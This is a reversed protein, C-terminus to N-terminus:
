SRHKPPLLSLLSSAMIIGVAIAGAELLTQYLMAASEGPNNQLALLLSNYIGSGPVLPILGSVLFVTAPTKKFRAAVEAFLALASSALIFAPISGLDAAMIYVAYGLLGDAAALFIHRRRVGFLVAFAASAMGTFLIRILIVM